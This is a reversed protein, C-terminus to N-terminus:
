RKRKWNEYIQPYFSVSWAIFYIWGIIQSFIELPESHQATVRVFANHVSFLIIIILFLCIRKM